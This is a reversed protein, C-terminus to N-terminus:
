TAICFSSSSRPGAGIWQPPRVRVRVRVRLVLVAGGDEGSRGRRAADSAGGGVVQGLGAPVDADDVEVLGGAFLDGGLDALLVADTRDADARVDGVLGRDPRREVRDLGFEVGDDGEDVQGADRGRM